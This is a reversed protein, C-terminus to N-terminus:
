TGAETTVEVWGISATDSGNVSYKDRLIIPKNSFTTFDADKSNGANASGKKYESGYVFVSIASTSNAIGAAALTAATYPIVTAVSAGAARASVYCKVTVGGKSVVITDHVDIM